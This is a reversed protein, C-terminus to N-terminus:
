RGLHILLVSIDAASVGSIRSAQGLNEPKQKELKERSEASLAKIASFSFNEPISFKDLRMMKEALRHEKEIYGAYKMQIEAQELEESSYDDLQSKLDASHDVLESLAVQPRTLVSVAKVKQKLGSSGKQELYPNLEEPAVSTDGLYKKIQDVRERKAVMKQYRAESALGIEYGIETLRLDANDQRLLM